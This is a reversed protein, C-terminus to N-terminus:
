SEDDRQRMASAYFVAVVALSVLEIALLIKLLLMAASHPPAPRRARRPRAGLSDNSGAVTGQRRQLHAERAAHGVM